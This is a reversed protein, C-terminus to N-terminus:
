LEVEVSISASLGKGRVWMSIIDMILRWLSDYRVAEHIYKSVSLGHSDYYLVCDHVKDLADVSLRFM